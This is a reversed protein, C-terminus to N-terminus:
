FLFTEAFPLDRLNNAPIDAIRRRTVLCVDLITTFKHGAKHRSSDVAHRTGVILQIGVPLMVMETFPASKLRM